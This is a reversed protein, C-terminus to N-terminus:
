VICLFPIGNQLPLYVSPPSGGGGGLIGESLTCPLRRSFQAPFCLSPNPLPLSSPVSKDEERERRTEKKRKKGERRRWKDIQKENQRSQIINILESWRTDTSAPSFPAQSFAHCSCLHIWLIHCPVQSLNLFNRPYYANYRAWGFTFVLLSFNIKERSQLDTSFRYNQSKLRYFTSLMDFALWFFCGIIQLSLVPKGILHGNQPVLASILWYQNRTLVWIQATISIPQPLHGECCSWDLSKGTCFTPHKRLSSLRFRKRFLPVGNTSKINWSKLLYSKTIKGSSSWNNMFLSLLWREFQIRRFTHQTSSWVLTLTWIM